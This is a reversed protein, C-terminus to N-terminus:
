KRDLWWNIIKSTFGLRFMTTFSIFVDMMVLAIVVNMLVSEFTPVFSIMDDLIKANINNWWKPFKINM